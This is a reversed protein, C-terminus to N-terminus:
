YMRSAYYANINYKRLVKVFVEAFKEKKEMIKERLVM